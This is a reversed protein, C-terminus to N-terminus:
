DQFAEAMHKAFAAVLGREVDAASRPRLAKQANRLIHRALEVKDDPLVMLHAATFQVTTNAMLDEIVQAYADLYGCRFGGKYAEMYENEPQTTPVSAMAKRAEREAAEREAQRREARRDRATMKVPPAKPRQEEESM